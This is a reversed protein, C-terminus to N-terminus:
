GRRYRIGRTRDRHLVPAAPPPAGIAAPETRHRIRFSRRPTSCVVIGIIKRYLTGLAHSAQVADDHTAGPVEAVLLIGDCAAAVPVADSMHAAPGQVLVFDASARARDLTDGLEPRGLLSAPQTVAAGSPLMQWSPGTEQRGILRVPAARRSVLEERFSSQGQLVASLGYSRELEQEANLPAGRLNAEILVVRRQVAALQRALATAVDASRDRPGTSTIMLVRPGDGPEALALRAALGAYGDMGDVTGHSFRLMRSPRRLSLLVPVGFAAEVDEPSRLHKDLLELLQSVGIALITALLLSAGGALLRHQSEPAMPTSARRILQASDVGIAASTELQVLRERLARREDPSGDALESLRARGAAIAESIAARATDLRYREYEVAVATAIAAARAPNGDHVTISVLNSTDQGNVEIRTALDRPSTGGVQKTVAELVPRSTILRTNTDIDRQANAPSSVVGPSLVQSVADSRQLLIQASAAYQPPGGLMLLLTTGVTIGFVALSVLWRRRLTALVAAIREVPTRAYTEATSHLPSAPHWSPEHPILDV